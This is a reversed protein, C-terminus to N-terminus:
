ETLRNQVQLDVLVDIHVLFQVCRSEAVETLDSKHTLLSAVDGVCVTLKLKSLPRGSGINMDWTPRQSALRLM